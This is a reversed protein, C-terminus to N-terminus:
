FPLGSGQFIPNVMPLAKNMAEQRVFPDVPDNFVSGRSAQNNYAPLILDSQPRPVDEQARLYPAGRWRDRRSLRQRKREVPAPDNDAAAITTDTPTATKADDALAAPAVLTAFAFAALITILRTM